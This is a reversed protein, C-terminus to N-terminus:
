VLLGGKWNVEPATMQLISHSHQQLSFHTHTHANPPSPPPNSFPQLYFFSTSSSEQWLPFYPSSSCLCSLSLNTSMSFHWLHLFFRKNLRHSVKKLTNTYHHSSKCWVESSSSGASQESDFFSNQTDAPHIFTESFCIAQGKLTWTSPAPLCIDALNFLAFNHKLGKYKAFHITLLLCLWSSM